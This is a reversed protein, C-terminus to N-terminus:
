TRSLTLACRGSLGDRRYRDVQNYMLWEDGSEICEVVLKGRSYIPVVLEAIAVDGPILARSRADRLPKTAILYTAVPMIYRQLRVSTDM